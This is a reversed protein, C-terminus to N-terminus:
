RNAVLKLNNEEAQKQLMDAEPITFRSVSMDLSESLRTMQEASSALQMASAANQQIMERLREVGKVVQETGSAQEDASCRIEQTIDNLKSVAQSIEGCSSAQESTASGIEQSYRTVESVAAEIRKLAQVVENSRDLANDVANVNKEVNRVAASADKQIGFILESIEATSKTSREALNRVEDAVVAFGLGQEGARAAEIAANLALLNTQEAIDDIVEIIKGIDDARSGLKRIMEASYSMVSTVNKVGDSSLNVADKGSEVVTDCQEAIEVLRKANDAIKEIWTILQQISGSTDSVFTAQSQISKAVGQINASIEQMTETIEEVATTASVGNMSSQESTAAIESSSSGIQESGNRVQNVISGLGYLMKQFANGLVDKESKPSVKTTLDGEAISGATRAMDNLYASMEHFSKALAGVEDDSKVDVAADLEGKSIKQAAESMEGLPRSISRALSIAIVVSIGAACISSLIIALYMMSMSDSAVKDAQLRKERISDFLVNVKRDVPAAYKESMQETLAAAEPASMPNKIQFVAAGLRKLGGYSDKLDRIISREVAALRMDEIKGFDEDITTSLSNFEDVYAGDGSAVYEDVSMALGSLNHRLDSALSQQEIYENTNSISTSLKGMFFYVIGSFSLMLAIVMMFGLLLKNGIRRIKM